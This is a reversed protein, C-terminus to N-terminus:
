AEVGILKATSDVFDMAPAATQRSPHVRGTMQEWKDIEARADRERFSEQAPRAKPERRADERMGKAVGLMYAFGKGAEIAVKSASIFDSVEAGEDLLALLKPHAPNVNGIGEAKVVLCVKAAQSPPTSSQTDETNINTVPTQTSTDPTQTATNDRTVPPTVPANKVRSLMAELDTTKTDWQPVIGHSRLQDFLVKRRERSRKQREKDNERKAEREPEAEHFKAIVEQVRNKVWTGDVLTFFEELVVDVAAKEEKSRARMLRYAQDAPIGQESSYYRDLILTYAGHELMSLHATDRAYDGLHREYYNM